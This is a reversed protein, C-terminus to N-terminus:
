INIASEHTYILYFEVEDKIFSEKGKYNEPHNTSCFIRLQYGLASPPEPVNTEPNVMLINSQPYVYKVPDKLSDEIEKKSINSYAKVTEGTELNVLQVYLLEYDKFEPNLYTRILFHKGEKDYRRDIDFGTVYVFKETKVAQREVIKDDKLLLLVYETDESLKEVKNQTICRDFAGITVDASIIVKHLKKLAPLILGVYGDSDCGKKVLMLSYENETFDEINDLTVSFNVQSHTSLLNDIKYTAPLKAISENNIEPNFIKSFIPIEVATQVTSTIALAAVFNTALRLM